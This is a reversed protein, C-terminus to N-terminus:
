LFLILQMLRTWIKVTDVKKSHGCKKNWRNGLQVVIKRADGLIILGHLQLNSTLHIVPFVAKGKCVGEVMEFNDCCFTAHFYIHKGGSLASCNLCLHYNWLCVHCLHDHYIKVCLLYKKFFVCTYWQFELKSKTM